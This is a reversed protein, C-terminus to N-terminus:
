RAATKTFAARWTFNRGRTMPTGPQAVRVIEVGEESSRKVVFDHGALLGVVVRHLSGTLTGNVERGLDISSDYRLRYRAKLAALVEGLTAKDATVRLAAEDGEVSVEARATALGACALALALTVGRARRGFIQGWRSMGGTADTGPQDGRWITM